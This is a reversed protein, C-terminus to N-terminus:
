AYRFRRETKHNLMRIAIRAARMSAGPAGLRERVTKLERKVETLLAENRLMELACKAVREPSAMDQILEPVVRRGAILNALGIDKVQVLRKGIWYSLNSVKYVIIMPTGAIAAELTATGSATIVLKAEKLVHHVANSLIIFRAKYRKVLREVRETDVTSAVPVAFLIGEIEDSIIEAARALIPLLRSVEENRSGPLLAIVPGKSSLDPHTVIEFAPTIDDLLPHGVFTVPVGREKYFDAEFPFIVVMHDVVRRIKRIRGTRWAWVQPSIYYMVPVDLKKATSALHLNFDPFDILVLLHPRIEKLDRKSIVLARLLVGLKLIAESIGVVGLRSIDARIQVGARRMSEGGVGFFAVDSDLARIARVLHSGHLDGSAEGAVIM